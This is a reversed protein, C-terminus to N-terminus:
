AIRCVMWILMPVTHCCLMNIHQMMGGVKVDSIPAGSRERLSKILAMADTAMARGPGLAIRLSSMMVSIAHTPGM